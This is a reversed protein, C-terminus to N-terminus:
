NIMLDKYLVIYFYFIGKFIFVYIGVCIFMRIYELVMIVLILIEQLLVMKIRKGIQDNLVVMLRGKMILVFM